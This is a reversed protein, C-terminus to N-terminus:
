AAWCRNSPERWRQRTPNGLSAAALRAAVARGWSDGVWSLGELWYSSAQHLHRFTHAVRAPDVARRRELDRPRNARRRSAPACQAGPVEINTIPLGMERVRPRVATRSPSRAPPSRRLTASSSRIATAGPTSCPCMPWTRCSNSGSATPGPRSTSGPRWRCRAPSGIPSLLPSTGPRSGARRTVSPTSATADVHVRRAVADLIAAHEAVFPPKAAIYNQRYEPSAIVFERARAGLMRQVQEAWRGCARGLPALAYVLPWARDAPLRRACRADRARAGAGTEVSM